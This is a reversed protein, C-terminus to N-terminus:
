YSYTTGTYAFNTYNHVMKRVPYMDNSFIFEKEKKINNRNWKIQFTVTGKSSQDM